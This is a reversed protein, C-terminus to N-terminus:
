TDLFIDNKLDHFSRGKISTGERKTCEQLLFFAADAGVPVFRGEVHKYWERFCSVLTLGVEGVKVLIMILYLFLELSTPWNIYTM